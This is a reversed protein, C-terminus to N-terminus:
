YINYVSPSVVWAPAADYRRSFGLELGFILFPLVIVVGLASLWVNQHLPMLWNVFSHAKRTGEDPATYTMIALSDKLTAKSFTTGDNTREITETVSSVAMDCKERSSTTRGALEDIMVGFGLNGMCVRRYQKGEVLGIRLAVARCRLLCMM